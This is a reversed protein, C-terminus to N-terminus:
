AADVFEIGLGKARAKMQDIEARIAHVEKQANRVERQMDKKADPGLMDMMGGMKMVCDECFIVPENWSVDREVDLFRPKDGANSDGNGRGCNLCPAPTVEILRM